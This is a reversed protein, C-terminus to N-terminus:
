GEAVAEILSRVERSMDSLTPEIASEDPFLAISLLNFAIQILAERESFEEFATGMWYAFAEKLGKEPMSAAASEPDLGEAIAHAKRGAISRRLNPAMADLERDSAMGLLLLSKAAHLAAEKPRGPNAALALGMIEAADRKVEEASPGAKIEASADAAWASAAGRLKRNAKKMAAMPQKRNRIRRQKKAKKM